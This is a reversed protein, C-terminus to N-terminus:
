RFSKWFFIRSIREWLYYFWFKDIKVPLALFKIMFLKWLPFKHRWEKSEIILSENKFRMPNGKLYHHKSNAWDLDVVFNKEGLYNLVEDLYGMPDMVFEEYQIKLVNRDKVQRSIDKYFSAYYRAINWWDHGRKVWSYVVAEPRRQLLIPIVNYDSERLQLYRELIKSSDLVINANYQSRIQNFIIDNHKKFINSDTSEVDLDSLGIGEKQNIENNVNSWFSCNSFVKNSCSCRGKKLADIRMPHKSFVFLEGVCGINKQNGLILSLLTSGSYSPSLIYLIPLTKDVFLLNIVNIKIAVLAM